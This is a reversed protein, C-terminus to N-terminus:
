QYQAHKWSVFCHICFYLAAIVHMGQCLKVLRGECCKECCKPWKQSQTGACLLCWDRPQSKGPLHEWRVASLHLPAPVSPPKSQKLGEEVESPYLRTHHQSWLAVHLRELDTSWCSVRNSTHSSNVTARQLESEVSIHWWMHLLTHLVIADLNM